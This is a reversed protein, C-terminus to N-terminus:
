ASATARTAWRAYLVISTDRSPGAPSPRPWASAGGDRGRRPAAPTPGSSRPRSRAVPPRLREGLDVGELLDEEVLLGLALQLELRDPDAVEPDRRDGVLDVGEGAQLDLRLAREGGREVDPQGVAGLAVDRGGLLVREAAVGGPRCARGRELDLGLRLDDLGHQAQELLDGALRPALEAVRVARVGPAHEVRLRQGVPPQVLDVPRLRTSAVPLPRSPATRPRSRRRGAPGSDGAKEPGSAILRAGCRAPPRRFADGFPRPSDYLTSSQNQFPRGSSARATM